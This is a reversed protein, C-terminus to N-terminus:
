AKKPSFIWGETSIAGVDYGAKATADTPVCLGPLDLPIAGTMKAYCAAVMACRLADEPDSKGLLRVKTGQPLDMNEFAPSFKTVGPYVEIITVQSDRARGEDWPDLPPIYIGGQKRLCSVVYQAKTAASGIADGAATKPLNPSKLNLADILFRETERYLFRNDSNKDKKGTKPKYDSKGSVLEVFRRPWGFVADVAVVVKAADCPGTWGAAGLLAALDVKEPMKTFLNGHFGPVDTVSLRKGDYGVVILADESDGSCKWPGVDWGVLLVPYDM